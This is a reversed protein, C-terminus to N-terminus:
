SPLSVSCQHDATEAGFWNFLLWLDGLLPYAEPIGDMIEAPLIAPHNHGDGTELFYSDFDRLIRCERGLEAFEAVLRM